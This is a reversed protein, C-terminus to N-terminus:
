SADAPVLLRVITGRGRSSELTFEAGIIEARERMSLLGMSAGLPVSELDFGDGDDIVSVALADRLWRLEIVIQSVSAAHRRANRLAELVIIFTEAEALPSLTTPTGTLHVVEAPHDEATEDIYDELAQQLTRDGLDQRLDFSIDRLREVAGDLLKLGQEVLAYREAFGAAHTSAHIHHIGALLSSLTQDHLERSIRRREEQHTIALRDLLNEVFTVSGAAFQSYIADYTAVAARAVDDPDCTPLEDILEALTARFLIRATTLIASPHVNQVARLEGLAAGSTLPAAVTADSSAGLLEARAQDVITEVQRAFDPDLQGDTLFPGNVERLGARVSQLLRERSRAGLAKPAPAEDVACCDEIM